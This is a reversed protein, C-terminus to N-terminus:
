RFAGDKTATKIDHHRKCLSQWNKRNWFKDYDGKHPEIHDVVEAQKAIGEQECEVCIPNRRLYMLRAKRWRANYGREHATGRQEDSQKRSQKKHQECYAETTLEPCRPHNCPKLPRSPSM